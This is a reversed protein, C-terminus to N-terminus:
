LDEEEDECPPADELGIFSQVWCLLKYLAGLEGETGNEKGKRTMRVYCWEGNALQYACLVRDAKMLRKSLDTPGPLNLVKMM